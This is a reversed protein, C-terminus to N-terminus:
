PRKHPLFSQPFPCEKDTLVNEDLWQGALRRGLIKKALWLSRDHSRGGSVRQPDRRGHDGALWQCDLRRGLLAAAVQNRGTPSFWGPRSYDFLDRLGRQ